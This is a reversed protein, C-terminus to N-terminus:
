GLIALIGIAIILLQRQGDAASFVLGLESPAALAQMETRRSHRTCVVRARRTNRPADITSEDRKCHASLTLNVAAGGVCM